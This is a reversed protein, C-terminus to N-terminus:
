WSQSGTCLRSSVTNAVCLGEQLVRAGIKGKGKADTGKAKVDKDEKVVKSGQMVASLELRHTTDAGAPLKYIWDKSEM